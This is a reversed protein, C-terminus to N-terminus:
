LLASVPIPRPPSLWWVSSLHQSEIYDAERLERNVDAPARRSTKRFCCGCFYGPHSWDAGDLRFLNNFHDLVEGEHADRPLHTVRVAYDAATVNDKAHAHKEQM